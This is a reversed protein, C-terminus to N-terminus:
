EPKETGSLIRVRIKHSRPFERKLLTKLLKKIKSFVVRHEQEVFGREYVLITDINPRIFLLSRDKKWTLLELSDGSDMKQLRRLVEQVATTRDLTAM